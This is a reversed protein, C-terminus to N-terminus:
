PGCARPQNRTAPALRRACRIPSAQYLPVSPQSVRLPQAANRASTRGPTHCCAHRAPPRGTGRCGCRMEFPQEPADADPVNRADVLDAHPRQGSGYDRRRDHQGDLRVDVTHRIGLHKRRRHALPERDLDAAPREGDPQRDHRRLLDIPQIDILGAQEGQTTGHVREPRQHGAEDQHVAPLDGAEAQRLARVRFPIHEDGADRGCRDDGLTMTVRQHALEIPLIRGVPETAVHSIRRTVM